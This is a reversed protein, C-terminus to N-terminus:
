LQKGVLEKLGEVYGFYEKLNLREDKRIHARASNYPNLEVIDAHSSVAAFGSEELTEMLADLDHAGEDTPFELERLACLAKLFFECAQALNYGAVDHQADDDLFKKATDLNDQGKLILSKALPNM